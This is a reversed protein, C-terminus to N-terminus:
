ASQPDIEPNEKNGLYTDMLTLNASESRRLDVWSNELMYKSLSFAFYIVFLDNTFQHFLAQFM